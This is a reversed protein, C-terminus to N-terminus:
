ATARNQSYGLDESCNLKITKNPM